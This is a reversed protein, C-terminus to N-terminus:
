EIEIVDDDYNEEDTCIEEDYLSDPNVTSNNISATKSIFGNSDILSKDLLNGAYGWGYAFSGDRLLFWGDYQYRGTVPDQSIPLGENFLKCVYVTHAPNRGGQLEAEGELIFQYEASNEGFIDIIQQKTLYTGIMFSKSNACTETIKPEKKFLRKKEIVEYHELIIGIANDPIQGLDDFGFSPIDRTLITRNNIDKFTAVTKFYVRKTAM